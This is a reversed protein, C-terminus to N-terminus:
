DDLEETNIILCNENSAKSKIADKCDRQALQLQKLTDPVAELTAM